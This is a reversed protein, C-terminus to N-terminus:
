SWWWVGLTGMSFSMGIRMKLISGSITFASSPRRRRAARALLARWRALKPKLGV